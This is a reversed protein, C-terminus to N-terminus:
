NCPNLEFFDEEITFESKQFSVFIDVFEKKIGKVEWDITPEGKIKFQGSDLAEKPELKPRIITECNMNDTGCEGEQKIDTKLKIDDSFEISEVFDITDIIQEHNSTIEEFEPLNPERSEPIYAQCTHHSLQSEKEFKECCMMCEYSENEEHLREYWYNTLSQNSKFKVNQSLIKESVKNYDDRNESKKCYQNPHFFDNHLELDWELKFDQKCLNCSFKSPKSNEAGTISFGNEQPKMWKGLGGSPDL